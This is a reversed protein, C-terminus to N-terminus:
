VDVFESNITINIFLSVTLELRKLYGDGSSPLHTEEWMPTFDLM